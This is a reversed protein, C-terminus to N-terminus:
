PSLAVLKVLRKRIAPYLQGAEKCGYKELLEKYNEPDFNFDQVAERVQEWLDDV